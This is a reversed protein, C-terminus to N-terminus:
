CNRIGKSIIILPIVSIIKLLQQQTDNSANSNTTIVQNMLDLPDMDNINNIDNIVIANKIKNEKFIEKLRNSNINNTKLTSMGNELTLLKSNMISNNNFTSNINKNIKNKDDESKLTHIPSFFSNIKNDLFINNSNRKNDNYRSNNNNNFSNTCRKIKKATDIIINKLLENERLTSLKTHNDNSISTNIQDTKSKHINNDSSTLTIGM